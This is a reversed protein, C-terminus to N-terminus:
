GNRWSDYAQGGFYAANGLGQQWANNQQYTSNARANAANQIGQGMQGGYYQGSQAMSNASTQAGGFLGALRNMYPTYGQQDAYDNGYRQLAKLTAGSNLGGRAAASAEIQGRGENLGFQYGPTARFKDFASQQKQEPTQGWTRGETKGHRTYHEYPNQSFYQNKAVDPNAALYAQADAQSFGGGQPQASYQGYLRQVHESIKDANTQNTFATTGSENFHHQAVGDWARRYAPDSNYLQANAVPAGNQMTIANESTLAPGTRWGMTQAGTGGAQGYGGQQGGLGLMSMYEGLAGVGAQYFPQQRAEDRNYFERMMDVMAQSGDAQQEGAKEAAKAARNSSYLSVAANAIAGWDWSM